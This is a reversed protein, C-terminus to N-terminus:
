HIRTIILIIYVAVFLCVKQEQVNLEEEEEWEESLACDSDGASQTDTYTM